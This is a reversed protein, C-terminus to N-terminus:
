ATACPPRGMHEPGTFVSDSIETKSENQLADKFCHWALVFCDM